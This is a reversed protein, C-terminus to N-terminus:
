AAAKDTTGTPGRRRLEELYELQHTALAGCWCLLTAVMTVLAVAFYPTLDARGASACLVAALEVVGIVSVSSYACVPGPSEDYHERIHLHAVWIALGSVIMGCLVSVARGWDYPSVAEGQASRLILWLAWGLLGAPPIWICVQKSV